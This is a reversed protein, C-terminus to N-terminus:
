KTDKKFKLYINFPQNQPVKGGKKSVPASPANYGPKNRTSYNLEKHKM